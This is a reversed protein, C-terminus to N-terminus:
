VITQANRSIIIIKIKFIQVYIYTSYSSHCLHMANIRNILYKLVQLGVIIHYINM